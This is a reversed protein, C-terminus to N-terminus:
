TQTAYASNVVQLGVVQLGLAAGVFWRVLSGVFLVFCMVCLVYYKVFLLCCYCVVVVVVLLVRHIQM